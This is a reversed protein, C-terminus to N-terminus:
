LRVSLVGRGVVERYSGLVSQVDNFLNRQVRLDFRAKRSVPFSLNWYFGMRQDQGDMSYVQAGATNQFRKFLRLGMSLDGSLIRTTDLQTIQPAVLSGNFNLSLGAPLSVTQSLTYMRNSFRIDDRTSNSQQDMIGLTTSLMAKKLSFSYGTMVNILHSSMSYNSAAAEQFYPAYQVRLFPLKRFQLHLIGGYSIYDTRLPKGPILLDHNRTFYGSLRIQRRFLQQDLRAEYQQRDSILVPSGLSVYGAGVFGYSGSIITKQKFLRIQSRGQYAYDGHTTLNPTFPLKELLNRTVLPVQDAIDDLLTTDSNASANRDWNHAAGAVFAQLTFNRKFLSLQFDTGIVLNEQPNLAPRDSFILAEADDQIHTMSFFIHSAEPKGLGAKFAQIHRRLRPFAAMTDRNATETVGRTYAGYFIAPNLEILMGDVRIGNITLPSFFPYATGISLAKITGGLQDGLSQIGMARISKRLNGPEAILTGMNVQEAQKLRNAMRSFKRLRKEIKQLEERKAELKQYDKKLNYLRMMRQCTRPSLSDCAASLGEESQIGYALQLSDLEKQGQKFRPHNMAMELPELSELQSLEGRLIPNALQERMKDLDGFKRKQLKDKLAELQTLKGPDGISKLSGIKSLTKDHLNQRFERADFYFNFQNIPNTERNHETSLLVRLGIPVGGLNVTPDLEARVFNQPTQQLTGQRNSYQSSIRATGGAQFLRDTIGANGDSNDKQSVEGQERLTALPFQSGSQVVMVEFDYKGPPLDQGMLQDRMTEIPQLLNAQMVTAGPPLTFERSKAKFILESKLNIVGAELQVTIVETGLNMVRVNWIEDLNTPTNSTTYFVEVQANLSNMCVLLLSVFVAIRHHVM